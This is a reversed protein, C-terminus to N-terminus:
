LWPKFAKKLRQKGRIITWMVVDQLNPEPTKLQPHIRHRSPEYQLRGHTDHSLVMSGIMSVLMLSIDRSIWENQGTLTRFTEPTTLLEHIENFSRNTKQTYGKDVKNEM